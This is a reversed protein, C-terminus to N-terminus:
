ITQMTLDGEGTLECSFTVLQGQPATLSLNSVYAEGVYEQNGTTADSIQVNFKTGNEVAAFLTSYKVGTPEYETAV